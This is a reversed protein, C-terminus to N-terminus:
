LALWSTAVPPEGDREIRLSVPGSPVEVAFRGLADAHASGAEGERTRVRVLAASPPALQGIVRAGDVGEHVEVEIELDGAVFVVLRPLGASRVGARAADDVLSDELIAALEVDLDALLYAGRAVRRTSEPVPDHLSLADALAGLLRDDDM